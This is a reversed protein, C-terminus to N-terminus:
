VGRVMSRASGSLGVFRQRSLAAGKCGSAQM